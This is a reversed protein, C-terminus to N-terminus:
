LKIIELKELKLSHTIELGSDTTNKLEMLYNLMILISRLIKCLLM